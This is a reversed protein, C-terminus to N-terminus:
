NKRKNGFRYFHPGERTKHTKRTKANRLKKGLAASENAKIKVSKKTKKYKGSRHM